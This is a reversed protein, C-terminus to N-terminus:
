DKFRPDRFKEPMHVYVSGLEDDELGLEGGANEKIAVIEYDWVDYKENTQMLTTVDFTLAGKYQPANRRTYESGLPDGATRIGVKEMHHKHAVLVTLEGGETWRARVFGPSGWGFEEAQPTPDDFGFGEINWPVVSNVEDHRTAATGVASVAGLGLFGAMFTRRNM